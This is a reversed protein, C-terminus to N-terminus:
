DDASLLAWGGGVVLPTGVLILYEGTRNAGMLECFIWGGLAVVATGVAISKQKKNMEDVDIRFEWPLDNQRDQACARQHHLTQLSRACNMLKMLSFDLLRGPQGRGGM